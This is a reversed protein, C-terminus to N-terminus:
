SSLLCHFFIYQLYILCFLSNIRLLLFELSATSSIPKNLDLVVNPQNMTELVYEQLAPCDSMFDQGEDEIRRKIAQDRLWQLPVDLSDMSFEYQKGSITYVVVNTLGMYNLNQRKELAVTSWCAGLENLLRHGDVAPLDRDVEGNEEAMLLHYQTVSEISNTRRIRAYEYCCLGVLDSICIECQAYIILSFCKSSGPESEAFPYFVLLKRGNKIDSAAFRAYAALDSRIVFDTKELLLGIISKKAPLPSSSCSRDDCQFFELDSTSLQTKVADNKIEKNEDSQVSLDNEQIRSRLREQLLEYTSQY